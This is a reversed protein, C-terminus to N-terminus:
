FHMKVTCKACNVTFKVLILKKAHLFRIVSCQECTTAVVIKASAYETEIDVLLPPLVSQITYNSLSVLTKLYEMTMFVM